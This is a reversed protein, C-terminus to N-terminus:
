LPPDSTGGSSAQGREQGEGVVMVENLGFGGSTVHGACRTDGMHTRRGLMEWSDPSVRCERLPLQNQVPIVSSVSLLMDLLIGLSEMFLLYGRPMQEAVKLGAALHTPWWTDLPHPVGLSQMKDMLIIDSTPQWRSSRPGLGSREQCLQLCVVHSQSNEM